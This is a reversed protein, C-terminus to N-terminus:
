SVPTWVVPPSTPAVTEVSVFLTATAGKRAAEEAVDRAIRENETVGSSSDHFVKWVSDVRVAYKKAAM